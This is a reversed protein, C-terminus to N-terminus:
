SLLSGVGYMVGIFAALAAIGIVMVIIATIVSVFISLLAKWAFGIVWTAFAVPDFIVALAALGVVALAGVIIRTDVPPESQDTSM